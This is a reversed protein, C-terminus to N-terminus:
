WKVGLSTSERFVYKTHSFVHCYSQKVLNFINVDWGVCFLDNRLREEWVIEQILVLFGFRVFYFAVRM